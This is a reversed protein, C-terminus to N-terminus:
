RSSHSSCAGPILILTTTLGHRRHLRRPVSQREDTGRSSRGRRRRRVCSRCAPGRSRPHSARARGQCAPSRGASAATSRTRPTSRSLGQTTACSRARASCRAPSSRRGPRCASGEVDYSPDLRVWTGEVIHNACSGCTPANHLAPYRPAGQGIEPMGFQLTYPLSSGSGIADRMDEPTVLGARLPTNAANGGWGTTQENVAGLPFSVGASASSIRQTASDYEAQWFDTEVGKERDRVTLHGDGSPDPRTGLPIRVTISGGQDTLRISYEPDGSGADATAVAWDTMAMNPSDIGYRSFASMYASSNPDLTGGLADWAWSAVNTVTTIM